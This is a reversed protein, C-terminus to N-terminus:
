IVRLKDWTDDAAQQWTSNKFNNWTNFTFSYTVALHAPKIEEIAKKLDELNPPVGKSGVFKIDFTYPSTNETVDVEGNQFSEAVNRILNVTITGSGRLKAKISSRRYDALKTEDVKINLFEEWLKLGWTASDVFCQNVIDEIAENLSDIEGQQIDYNTNFIKSQTLFPPVYEKLKM